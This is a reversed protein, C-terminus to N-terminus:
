NFLIVKFAFTDKNHIQALRVPILSNTFATVPFEGGSASSPMFDVEISKKGKTYFKIGVLGSSTPNLTTIIAAKHNYEAAGLDLTDGANITLVKGQKYFEM